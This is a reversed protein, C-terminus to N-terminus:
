ENRSKEIEIVGDENQVFHIPSTNTGKNPDYTYTLTPDERTEFINKLNQARSQRTKLVTMRNSVNIKHDFELIVTSNSIGAPVIEKIHNVSFWICDEITPAKSPFWYIGETGSIKIPPMDFNGIAAKAAKIAGELSSGFYILSIELIKIPSLKVTFVETGEWVRSYLHGNKEYVGMLAITFRNIIYDDRMKNM